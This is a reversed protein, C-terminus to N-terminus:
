HRAQDSDAQRRRYYIGGGFNAFNGSLTCNSVTLTGLNHIGGGNTGPPRGNAITLGSLTVTRGSLVAFIGYDGGTYRQVTLSGAGPGQIDINSDLNPLAGTLNIMGTVSFNIIDDGPVNNAQTIAWRLSGASPNDALTNVTFTALLTRDELVELWLRTFHPRRNASKRSKSQLWRSVFSSLM